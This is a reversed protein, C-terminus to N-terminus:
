QGLSNRSSILQWGEVVDLKKIDLDTIKLGIYGCLERLTAFGEWKRSVDDVRRVWYNNSPKPKYRRDLERTVAYIRERLDNRVNTLEQYFLPWEVKRCQLNDYMRIFQKRGTVLQKYTLKELDGGHLCSM